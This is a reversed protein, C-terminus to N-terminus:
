DHYFHKLEGKTDRLRQELGRMHDQEWNNLVEKGSTTSLLPTNKPEGGFKDVKPTELNLM